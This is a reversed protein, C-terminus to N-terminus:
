SQTPSAGFFAEILKKTAKAGLEKPDLVPNYEAIELGVLRHAPDHKRSHYILKQFSELFPTIRLGDAVPTGVSPIDKPDFCDLDITVGMALDMERLQAYATSLAKELGIKKIEEITFIRIRLDQFLEWEEKEYSRVGFVIVSEPSLKPPPCAIQTLHKDGYGLLAALPMGHINGSPSSSLTHGDLHADVWLLSLPTPLASAVGSWVGIASSHDGGLALFTQGKQTLSQTQKALAESMAIVEPLADRQRSVDHTPTILPLWDLLLSFDKEKKLYQKLYSPGQGCDMNGAAIGAAYSVVPIPSTNKMYKGM